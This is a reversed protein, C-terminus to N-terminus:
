EKNKGEKTGENGTAARTIRVKEIGSELLGVIPCIASYNGFEFKDYAQCESATLQYMLKTKYYMM